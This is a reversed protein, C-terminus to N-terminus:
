KKTEPSRTKDDTLGVIYDISVDYFKALVILCNIPITRKGNEYRNYQSRDTKILEAIHEQTYDNDIRLEKLRKFYSYM